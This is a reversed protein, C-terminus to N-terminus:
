ADEVEGNVDISNTIEIMRELVLKAKGSDITNAAINVGEKLDKVKDSIILAAATNLLVVDRYPGPEGALMKRIAVANYEADGGKLDELKAEPLGADSPSIEFTDVKGNELSAVYSKG